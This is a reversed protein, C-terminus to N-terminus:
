VSRVITIFKEAWDFDYQDYRERSHQQATYFLKQDEHLSRIKDAIAVASGSQFLFRSDDIAARIGAVDSGIVAIGATFAELVVDPLADYLSPVVLLDATDTLKHPTDVWGLLKINDLKHTRIYEAITAEEIGSGAIHLNMKLGERTLIEIAKVLTLAAKLPILTGCFLINRPPHSRNNDKARPVPTNGRKGSHKMSNPLLSYQQKSFGIRQQYETAEFETQFFYYDVVRKIVQELCREKIRRARYLTRSVLSREHKITLRLATVPNDRPDFVCQSLYMRKLAAAALINCSGYIFIVDPHYDSLRRRQHTVIRRFFFVWGGKPRTAQTTIFDIHINKHQDIGVAKFTRDNVINKNMLIIIQIGRNALLLLHHLYRKPGGGRIVPDAM